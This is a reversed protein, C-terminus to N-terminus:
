FYKKCNTPLGLQRCVVLANNREWFDDCVTGWEGGSCYEVRGGNPSSGDVLRVDGDDCMCSGDVLNSNPCDM